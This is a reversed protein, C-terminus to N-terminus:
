FARRLGISIKIENTKEIRKYSGEPLGEVNIDTTGIYIIDFDFGSSKAEGWMWQLGIGLSVGWNRQGNGHLSISNVGYYISVRPRLPKEVSTFFCKIGANYAILDFVEYDKFPMDSFVTTGVGISLALFHPDNADLNIGLGGYPIGWGLGISHRKVEVPTSSTQAMIISSLLAITIATGTAYKM